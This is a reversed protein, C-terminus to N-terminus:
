IHMIVEILDEKKGIGTTAWSITFGKHTISVSKHDDRAIYIQKSSLM